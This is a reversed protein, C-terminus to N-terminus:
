ILNKVFVLFDFGSFLFLFFDLFLRRLDSIGVGIGFERFTLYALAVDGIELVGVVEEAM